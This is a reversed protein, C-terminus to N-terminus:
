VKRRRKLGIPVDEYIEESDESDESSESGSDSTEYNSDDEQEDEQEDQGEDEHEDDAEAELSEMDNEDEEELERMITITEDSMGEDECFVFCVVIIMVLTFLVPKTFLYIELYNDLTLPKDNLYCVDPFAMSNLTSMNAYIMAPFLITDRANLKKPMRQCDIMTSGM